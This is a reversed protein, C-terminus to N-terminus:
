RRGSRKLRPFCQFMNMASKMKLSLFIIQVRDGTGDKPNTYTFDELRKVQLVSNTYGNLQRCYFKEKVIPTGARENEARRGPRAQSPNRATAIEREGRCSRAIIRKRARRDHM